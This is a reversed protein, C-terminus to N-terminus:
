SYHILTFSLLLWVCVQVTKAGIKQDFNGDIWIEETVTDLKLDSKEFKPIKTQYRLEISQKIMVM